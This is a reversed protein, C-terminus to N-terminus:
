RSFDQLIHTGASGSTQKAQSICLMRREWRNTLLVVAKYLAPINQSFKVLTVQLSGPLLLGVALGAACCPNTKFPWM